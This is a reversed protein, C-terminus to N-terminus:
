KKLQKRIDGWFMWHENLTAANNASYFKRAEENGPDVCIRYAHMEVFWAALLKVMASAIGKRRFGEAVDIWQLEGECQYRRTLHGAIFGIINEGECAVFIIRPLLSQQPHHTSNMYGTIRDKWYQGYEWEASRLAALFPIDQKVAERYSIASM